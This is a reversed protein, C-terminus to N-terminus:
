AMGGDDPNGFNVEDEPRTLFPNDDDYQATNVGKLNDPDNPDPTTTKSWADRPQHPSLASDPGGELYIEVEVPRGNADVYKSIADTTVIYASDLGPGFNNRFSIRLSDGVRTSSLSVKGEDQKYAPEVKFGGDPWVEKKVMVGFDDVEVERLIIEPMVHLEATAFVLRSVQPSENVVSPVVELEYYTLKTNAPLEETTKISAEFPYSGVQARNVVDNDVKVKFMFKGPGRITIPEELSTTGDRDYFTIPGSHGFEIKLSNSGDYDITYPESFIDDTIQEVHTRNLTLFLPEPNITIPM